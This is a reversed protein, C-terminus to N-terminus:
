NSSITYKSETFLLEQCYFIKGLLYSICSKGANPAGYFWVVKRKESDCRLFVKYIQYILDLYGSKEISIMMSKFDNVPNM